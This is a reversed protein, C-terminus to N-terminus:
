IKIWDAPILGDFGWETRGKIQVDPTIVIKGKGDPLWAGWWSFTSNAIIFHRCKTMLWLDAFANEDGGNHSIFTSRDAPLSLRARAAEPNDSFLFYHPSPLRTEMFSVARRYYDVALNHGETEGPEDFWRMHIAVAPSKEIEEALILNKEDAPPIIRLDERIADAADKFYFESQWYGDLYLAGRVKFDLIRRDFAAGEQELYRRSHFPLKNNVLKALGRRYRGFPELREAPVARRAPISFRDLMYRRHYIDRAFGTVDDIVLEANNALALRRAAAYCFLQNGLGGKIRAIVKSM